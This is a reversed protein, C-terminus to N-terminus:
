FGAAAAFIGSSGMETGIPPAIWTTVCKFGSFKMGASRRFLASGSYALHLVFAFALSRGAAGFDIDTSFFSGHGDSYNRYIKSFLSCFVWVLASCM